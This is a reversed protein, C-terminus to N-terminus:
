SVTIASSPSGSRMAGFVAVSNDERVLGLGQAYGVLTAYKEQLISFPIKEKYTFSPIRALNNGNAAHTWYVEIISEVITNIRPDAICEPSINSIDSHLGSGIDPDSPIGIKRGFLAASLAPKFNGPLSKAYANAFTTIGAWCLNQPVGGVWFAAQENGEDRWQLYVNRTRSQSRPGYLSISGRYKSVPSFAFTTGSDRTSMAYVFVLNTAVYGSIINGDHGIAPWFMRWIGSMDCAEAESIQHGGHSPQSMGKTAARGVSGFKYRLLPPMSDLTLGRLYPMGDKETWQLRFGKKEVVGKGGEHDLLTLLEAFGAAAVEAEKRSPNGERLKTMGNSRGNADTPLSLIDVWTKDVLPRPQGKDIVQMIHYDLLRSMVALSARDIEAM